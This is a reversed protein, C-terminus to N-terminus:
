FNDYYNPGAFDPMDELETDFATQVPSDCWGYVVNEAPENKIRRTEQEYYLGVLLDVVGFSRNKAVEIVVDYGLMAQTTTDGFFDKARREFDRGVRHSIIVNDALNTLNATGAISEKRLLQFSQEKRPHCVLVIHINEKKAYSKIDKILKTQRENETGDADDLTLAMLNDLMVLQVGNKKVCEDIEPMLHSWEDGYENNYVWFKDKTWENIKDSINKPAYYLGDYGPKERVFGKGAAMQDFWAQFRFGQLEGSWAAAKYGRQIANLIISDLLTTKGSGSLGSLITVDGLTLGMIKKDLIQIGTPISILQSPDLWEIDALSLWKKGRGDEKVPEIPRPTMKGNYARKQRYEEYERRDYAQPDFKLRVDKWTYGRCSNHLCRFGIAGSDMVFIASDPAKHNPDFPCEKLVLKEGDKFRSGSRELSM